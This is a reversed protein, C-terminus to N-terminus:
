QGRWRSTTLPGTVHNYEGAQCMVQLDTRLVDYQRNLEAELSEEQPSDVPAEFFQNWLDALHQSDEFPKRRSAPVAPINCGAFEGQLQRVARDEEEFPAAGEPTDPAIDQQTDVDALHRTTTLVAQCPADIKSM